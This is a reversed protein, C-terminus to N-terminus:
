SELREGSPRDSGLERRRGHEKGEGQDEVRPWPRGAAETRPGAPASASVPLCRPAGGSRLSGGHRVWAPRARRRRAKGAAGTGTTCAAAAGHGCGRRAPEGCRFRRSSAWRRQYRARSCSGAVPPADEAGRGCSQRRPGRSTRPPGRPAAGGRGGRRAAAALSSPPSVVPWPRPEAPPRPQM